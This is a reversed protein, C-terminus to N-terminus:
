MVNLPNKHTELGGAEESNRYWSVNPALAYPQSYIWPHGLKYVKLHILEKACGNSRPCVSKRFTGSLIKEHLSLFRRPCLKSSVIKLILVSIKWKNLSAKFKRYLYYMKVSSQCRKMAFSTDALQVCDWFLTVYSCEMRKWHCMRINIDMNLM